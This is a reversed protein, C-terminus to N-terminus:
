FREWFQKSEDESDQNISVRAM